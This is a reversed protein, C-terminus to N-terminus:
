TPLPSRANLLVVLITVVLDILLRGLRIMDDVRWCPDDEGDNIKLIIIGKIFM